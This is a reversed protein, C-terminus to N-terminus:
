IYASCISILRDYDARINVIDRKWVKEEVLESKRVFVTVGPTGVPFLRQDVVIERYLSVELVLSNASLLGDYRFM